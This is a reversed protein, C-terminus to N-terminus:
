EPKPEPVLAILAMARLYKATRKRDKPSPHPIRSLDANDRLDALKVRRGIRNCAARRVFNMYAEGKRKTVARLALLIEESFGERRLRKISWDPCDEVVDHLVATIREPETELRLMVRLPHLIYPAGAKDLKGAHAKAAIELARELTSM